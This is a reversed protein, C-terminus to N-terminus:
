LRQFHELMRQSDPTIGSFLEFAKVAQFVAMTGGDLTRCGLARANRLLETELPFYVIEAVWVEARLLALPVPMGPLKAMGMPTTNVLGDAQAMSAALDSGAKARGGAFHQNLNDALSQARASDVDFITLQGVGEGLLAHAVAAGAGGAGMQVVHEVAVGKLGRRFGEAFGLCDTNHGVRKGDKLVVTNVAGIGRAEPSLEDLLPIIAQKCPFTINLGTFAMREAALLLEPLASIDLQLPDLDILRYLYRLGQADGEREHLTPTRSAQIGAGILGALVTRSHNQSM